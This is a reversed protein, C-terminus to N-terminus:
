WTRGVLLRAEIAGPANEVILGQDPQGNGKGPVYVDGPREPPGRPCDHEVQEDAMHPALVTRNSASAPRSSNENRPPELPDGDEFLLPQDRYEAALGVRQLM